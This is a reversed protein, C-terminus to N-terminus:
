SLMEQFKEKSGSFLAMIEIEGAVEEKPNAYLYFSKIRSFMQETPIDVKFLSFDFHIWEFDDNLKQAIGETEFIFDYLNDEARAGLNLSLKTGISGRTLIFVHRNEPASLDLFLSENLEQNVLQAPIHFFEEAKKNYKIKVSETEQDIKLDYADPYTLADITSENKNDFTLFFESRGTITKFITNSYPTLETYYGKGGSIWDIVNFYALSSPFFIESVPAWNEMIVLEDKVPDNKSKRVSLIWYFM